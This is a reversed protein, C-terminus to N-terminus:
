KASKGYVEAPDFLPTNDIFLLRPRDDAPDIKLKRYFCSRRGTHCATGLGQATVKLVLVDQDCDTLIEDIKLTEGSTEGKKWLSQRSRSWFHAFGTEVSLNLATANMHAFMLPHGTKSELVVAPILGDAGFLPLFVDGEERQYTDDNM